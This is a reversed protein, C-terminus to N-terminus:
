KHRPGLHAKLVLLTSLAHKLAKTCAGAIEDTFVGLVLIVIMIGNIALMVDAFDVSFDSGFLGISM